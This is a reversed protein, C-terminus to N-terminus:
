SPSNGGGTQTLIFVEQHLCPLMMGGSSWFHSIRIDSLSPLARYHDLRAYVLLQEVIQARFGCGLRLDLKPWLRCDIFIRFTINWFNLSSSIFEVAATMFHLFNLTPPSTTAHSTARYLGVRYIERTECRLCMLSGQWVSELSLLMEELHFLAHAITKKGKSM